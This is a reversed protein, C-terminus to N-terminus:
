GMATMLMKDMWAESLMFGPYGEEPTQLLPFLSYLWLWYLNQTWDYETLNGFEERLKLIQAYYDKYTDNETKLHYSARPSGFVSFVDLGMPFLRNNVKNHVLQQFIYSDPIFRQGMLRFGQTVNEFDLVDRIIMSNIKPKRYNKAENIIQLILSENELENLEQINFKQSILYYEIATLDDSAGVYFSTPEYVRDWFDWVTESGISANFSSLLLIAMRTQNIGIDVEGNPGQLLFGIRGAYMMAKFYNELLDNRTYHGRVKYQTYDEQYEFISSFAIEEIEINSLEPNVLHTVESPIPNTTSNLLYLMVSLYAINKVLADQVVAETVSDKLIIQESRLTKLMTEFDYYFHTGELLRLSIDYLVHFAHLSLDTTIFKPTDDSAKYLDYIDKYGEDVLAFGFKELESVVSPSLLFGQLDVNKLNSLIKVPTIKPEYNLDQPIYSGFSTKLENGIKYTSATGEILTPGEWDSIYFPISGLPNFLAIAMFFVIFALIGGGVSTFISYKKLNGNVKM